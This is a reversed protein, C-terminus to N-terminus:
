IFTMSLYNEKVLTGFFMASLIISLYKYSEYVAREKVTISEVKYAGSMFDHFKIVEM